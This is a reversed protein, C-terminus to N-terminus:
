LSCVQEFRSLSKLNQASLGTVPIAIPELGNSVDNYTAEDSIDGGSLDPLQEM